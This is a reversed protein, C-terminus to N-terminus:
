GLDILSEKEEETLERELLTEIDNITYYLLAIPKRKELRDRFLQVLDTKGFAEELTDIDCENFVLEKEEEEEENLGLYEMLDDSDYALIDNISVIKIAEEGCFIEEFYMIADEGKGADMIKDWTDVAQGWLHERLDNEYVEDKIWM